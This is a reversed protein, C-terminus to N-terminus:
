KYGCVILWLPVYVCVSMCIFKSWFRNVEFLSHNAPPPPNIFPLGFDENSRPVQLHIDRETVTDRGAFPPNPVHALQGDKFSRLVDAWAKFPGYM